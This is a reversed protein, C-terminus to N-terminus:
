DEPLSDAGHEIAQLDYSTWAERNVKDLIREIEGYGYMPSRLEMTLSKTGFPRRNPDPFMTELKKLAAKCDLYRRIAKSKKAALELQESGGYKELCALCVRVRKMHVDLSDSFLAVSSDQCVRCTGFEKNTEVGLYRFMSVHRLPPQFQVIVKLKLDSGHRTQVQKLRVVSVEPLNVSEAPGDDVNKALWRNCVAALWNWLKQM